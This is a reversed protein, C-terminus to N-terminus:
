MLRKSAYYGGGLIAHNQNSMIGLPYRSRQDAYAPSANIGSYFHEGDFIDMHHLAVGGTIWVGGDPMFCLQITSVFLGMYWAFAHNLEMAKGERMAAGVQEPQIKERDPYFFEYLNVIGPGSLIKEFTVSSHHHQLFKMLELHLQKKELPATPPLTIGIHGAENQGLWFEGNPFLAGDKMGLGTGVGLAVRRGYKNMNSSNLRKINESQNMYDTFTACLILSYDHIVAFPPWKQKAALQAFDMPYPYVGEYILSEGNYQGAAGICVADADSFQLNLESEIQQILETLSNTKKLEISCTKKCILDFTDAHYEVIGAACKTGGLDCSIIYKKM